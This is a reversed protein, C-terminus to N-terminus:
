CWWCWWCWWWWWWWWCWWCWWWGLRVLAASAATIGQEYHEMQILCESLNSYLVVRLKADADLMLAQVSASFLAPDAVAAAAAAAACASAYVVSVAAAALLLLLKLLLLLLGRRVKEYLDAAAEFDRGKFFENGEGKLSLATKGQALFRVRHAAATACTSCSFYWCWFSRRALVM